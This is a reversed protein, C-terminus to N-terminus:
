LFTPQFSTAKERSLNRKDKKLIKERYRYEMKKLNEFSVDTEIDINYGACFNEIAIKRQQNYITAVACHMYLEDEFSSEILKNIYVVHKESVDTGYRYNKLWSIPLHIIIPEKYIDFARHIVEKNRDAYVNKEIVAAIILGFYSDMQFIVPNGYKAELYKKLHPKTPLHISFYPNKM